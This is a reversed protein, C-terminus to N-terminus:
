GWRRLYGDRSGVYIAGDWVAPTSEICGSELPADWLREPTGPDSIDYTRLAGGRDCDVAVLLTDHVIVPSSWAHFGIEDRWLVDGSAADIALLQM